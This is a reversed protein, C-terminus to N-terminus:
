TQFSNASLSIVPWLFHIVALLSIAQVGDNQSLHM